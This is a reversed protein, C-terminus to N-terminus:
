TLSTWNPKDKFITQIWDKSSVQDETEIIKTSTQFDSMQPRADVSSDVMEVNPKVATSSSDVTQM